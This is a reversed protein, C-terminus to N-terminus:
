AIIKPIHKLNSFTTSLRTDASWDLTGMDVVAVVVVVTRKLVVSVRVNVKM